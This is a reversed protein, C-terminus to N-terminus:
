LAITPRRAYGRYSGMRAVSAVSKGVLPHREMGDQCFPPGRPGRSHEFTWEKEAKREKYLGIPWFRLRENSRGSGRRGSVMAGISGRAGASSANSSSSAAVDGVASARRRDCEMVVCKLTMWGFRRATEGPRAEDLLVAVKRALSPSMPTARRVRPMQRRRSVTQRQVRDLKRALTRGKGEEAEGGGM